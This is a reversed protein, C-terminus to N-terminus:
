HLIITLMIKSSMGEDAFIDQHKGDETAGWSAESNQSCAKVHWLIISSKGKTWVTEDSNKLEEFIEKAKAASLSYSTGPGRKTLKAFMVMNYKEQAYRNRHDGVRDAFDELVWCDSEPVTDDM